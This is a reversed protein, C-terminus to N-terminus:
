GRVQGQRKKGSAVGFGFGDTRGNGEKKPAAMAMAM